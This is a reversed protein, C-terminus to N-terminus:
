RHRHIADVFRNLYDHIIPFIAGPGIAPRALAVGLGMHREPEVLEEWDLMDTEETFGSRQLSARCVARQVCPM